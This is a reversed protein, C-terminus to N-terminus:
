FNYTIRIQADLGPNSQWKPYYFGSLGINYNLSKTKFSIGAELDWLKHIPRYSLSTYPKIELKKILSLKKATLQGNVWTYQYEDPKIKYETQHIGSLSNGLTLTFTNKNLNIGSILGGQHAASNVTSDSSYSHSGLTASPEDKPFVVKSPKVLNVLPQPPSIEGAEKFVTDTKTIPHDKLFATVSHSIELEEELLHNTKQLRCTKITMGFLILLLVVLTINKIKNM